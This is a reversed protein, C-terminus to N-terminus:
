SDHISKNLEINPFFNWGPVWLYGKDMYITINVTITTPGTSIHIVGMLRCPYHSNIVDGM